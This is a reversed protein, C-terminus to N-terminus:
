TLELKIASRGTRYTWLGINANTEKEEPKSFHTTKLPVSILGGGLVCGSVM